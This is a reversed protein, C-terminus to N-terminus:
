KFCEQDENKMNILGKRRSLGRPLPIHSSGKLPKLRNVAVDLGVVEKLVWVSGNRLFTAFAELMKSIMENYKIEVDTSSLISEQKSNFSALEENTITGTAPDVKIM